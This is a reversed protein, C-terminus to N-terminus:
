LRRRTSYVRRARPPARTSIPRLGACDRQISMAAPTLGSVVSRDYSECRLAAHCTHGARGPLCHPPTPSPPPPAPPHPPLPAPRRRRAVQERQAERRSPAARWSEVLSMLLPQPALPLLLPLHHLYREESSQVEGPKVEHMRWQQWDDFGRYTSSCLCSSDTCRTAARPREADAAATGQWPFAAAGTSDVKVPSARCKCRASAGHM